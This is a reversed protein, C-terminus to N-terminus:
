RSAADACSALPRVGLVAAMSVSADPRVPPQHPLLFAPLPLPRPHAAGDVLQHGWM